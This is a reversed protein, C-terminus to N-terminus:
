KKSNLYNCIEEALDKDYISGVIYNNKDILNYRGLNEGNKEELSWKPEEIIQAWTNSSKQWIVVGGYMLDGDADLYPTKGKLTKSIGKVWVVKVGEKYGKLEAVKILHSEIEQQTPHIGYSIDDLVLDKYIGYEGEWNFGEVIVGERSKIQTILCFFGNEKIEHKVFDGVKFPRQFGNEVLIAKVEEMDNANYLREELQKNM